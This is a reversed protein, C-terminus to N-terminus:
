IHILSLLSKAKLIAERKNLGEQHMIFDIVDLSKGHTKCNGSFCYVTNTKEYVRMSPTKDKHFPCNIHGKIVSLGYHNLVQLISLQQKIEAIEM